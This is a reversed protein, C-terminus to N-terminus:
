HNKENSVLDKYLYGILKSYTVEYMGNRPLAGISKFSNRAHSNYTIIKGAYKKNTNTFPLVLKIMQKFTIGDGQYNKTIQFDIIYNLDENLSILIYGVFTSEDYYLACLLRDNNKLDNIWTNKYNLTRVQSYDDEDISVEKISRSYVDYLVELEERTLENNKKCVIRM